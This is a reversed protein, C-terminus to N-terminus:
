KLKILGFDDVAKIRNYQKKASLNVNRGDYIRAEANGVSSLAPLTECEV